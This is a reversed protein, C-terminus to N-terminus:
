KAELTVVFDFIVLNETAANIIQTTVNIIQDAALNFARLESAPTTIGTGASLNSTSQRTLSNLAALRSTLQGGAGNNLVLSGSISVVGCRINILKSNAAVPARFVIVLKLEDNPGMTNAPMTWTISQQLTTAGTFGTAGRADVIPTKVAPVEFEGGVLPDYINNYIVGVTTSSMEVYYIGAPSATYAAGAPLYMYAAPFTNFLALSLTLAGNAAVSGSSPQIYPIKIRYLIESQQDGLDDLDAELDSIDDDVSAFKAEIEASTSYPRDAPSGAYEDPADTTVGMNVIRTM